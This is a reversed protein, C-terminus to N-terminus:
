MIRFTGGRAAEAGISASGQGRRAAKTVERAGTGPASRM